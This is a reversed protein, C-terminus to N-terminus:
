SVYRNFTINCHNCEPFRNDKTTYIPYDCNSCTLRERKSNILKKFDSTFCNVVIVCFLSIFIITWM